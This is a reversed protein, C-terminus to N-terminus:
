LIIAGTTLSWDASAFGVSTAVYPSLMSDAVIRRRIIRTRNSDRHQSPEGESFPSFSSCLRLKIVKRIRVASHSARNNWVRRFCSKSEVQALWDILAESDALHRQFDMRFIKTVKRHATGQTLYGCDLCSKVGPSLKRPSLAVSLSAVYLLWRKLTGLLNTPSRTLAM